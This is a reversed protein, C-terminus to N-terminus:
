FAQLVHHIVPEADSYEVVIVDFRLNRRNGGLSSLYAFACGIIKRQKLYHVSEFGSNRFGYEITTLNRTKVEVFVITKTEDEAIIDIEGMKGHRWNTALIQWGKKSLWDAAAKEGTRGLQIRRNSRPKKTEASLGDTKEEQLMLVGTLPPETYDLDTKQSIRKFSL